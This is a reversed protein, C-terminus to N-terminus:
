VSLSPLCFSQASQAPVKILSCAACCQPGGCSYRHDEGGGRIVPGASLSETAGCLM